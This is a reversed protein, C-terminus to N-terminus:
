AIGNITATTRSTGASGRKAIRERAANDGELGSIGANNVVIDLRETMGDVAEFMAAVSASDSVDCAVALGDLADATAQAAALNLDNIIM